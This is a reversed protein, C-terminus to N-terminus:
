GFWALCAAVLSLGFGTALLYAANANTTPADARRSHKAARVARMGGVILFALGIAAVTIPYVM